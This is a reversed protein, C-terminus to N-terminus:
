LQKLGSKTTCAQLGLKAPLTPLLIVTLSAKAWFICSGTQSIFLAAIAPPTDRTTSHKDLLCSDRLQFGLGSMFLYFRWVTLWFQNERLYFHFGQLCIINFYFFIVFITRQEQLIKKRTIYWSSDHIYSNYQMEKKHIIKQNKKSNKLFLKMM